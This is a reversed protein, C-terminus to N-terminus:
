REAGTTLTSLRSLAMGTISREHSVCATPQWPGQGLWIAERLVFGLLDFAPLSLTRTIRARPIRELIMESSQASTSGSPLPPVVGKGMGKNIFLTIDAPRGIPDAWLKVSAIGM